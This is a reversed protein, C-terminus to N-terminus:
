ASSPMRSLTADRPSPSTYLLCTSAGAIFVEKLFSHGDVNEGPIAIYLDGSQIERSDTAIGKIQNDIEKGLSQFFVKSFTNSNPLSIRM